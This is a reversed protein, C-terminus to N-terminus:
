GDPELRLASTAFLSQGLVASSDRGGLRLIATVRSDPAIRDRTKITYVGEYVGYRTERLFVRGRVGAIRISVKGGASGYLTFLLDSGPILQNPQVDFRDIMLDARLSAAEAMRQASTKSASALLSRDLVVSAVQHGLRLDATVSSDDTIRDTTKITYTGEYLGKEAEELQLRQPTGSIGIAAVAGPTGNLTFNLATGAVLQRVQEVEFGDIKPATLSVLSQQARAAGLSFTSPFVVWLAFLASFIAQGKHRINVTEDPRASLM